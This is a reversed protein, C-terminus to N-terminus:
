NATGNLASTQTGAADTVSVTASKLGITQATQPKFQVTVICTGAPALTANAVTQGNGTPGCTSASRVISYDTPNAGGLAAQNIGTLTVNGTNTLTFVRAPDLACALIQASTTGPCNRTQSVTWSTPTLTAAVTAAVGTGTLTVPSGTVAVNGTITLTANVAGLATPSFVVNITCTSGATLTATCTGGAVPRSYRPSSFALAIGTLSANGTNHLTLTRAASTTNVAVNGFALPGGTVSAIPAPAAQVEVAGVDIKPGSPRPNGFFDTSPVPVSGPITEPTAIADKAPSGSTLSYDGLTVNTVPNSLSLPGWAINIWNNGEDVTAAPTLSFIPNPVSADSIGPPVQYGSGGFEPPIRSGNCYQSVVAPNSGLNGLGPYDAVDTIVSNTPHLTTGSAHNAPGTDGRVGIDWYSAPSPCSGTASQSPAQTTTFADYLAVVHQQNLTGTGLPGVGIYFARNNWFV